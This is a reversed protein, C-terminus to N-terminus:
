DKIEYYHKILQVYDKKISSPITWNFRDELYKDAKENSRLIDINKKLTIRTSELTLRNKNSSVVRCISNTRIDVYVSNDFKSEIKRRLEKLEFFTIESRNTYAFINYILAESEIIFCM